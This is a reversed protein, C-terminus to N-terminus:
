VTTSNPALRRLYTTPQSTGEIRKRVEMSHDKYVAMWNNM